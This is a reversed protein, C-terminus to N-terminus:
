FNSIIISSIYIGAAKDFGSGVLIELSLVSNYKNNFNSLSDCNLMKIFFKM